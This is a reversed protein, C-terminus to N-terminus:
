VATAHSFVAEAGQNEISISRPFLEMKNTRMLIALAAKTAAVRAIGRINPFQSASAEIRLQPRNKISM